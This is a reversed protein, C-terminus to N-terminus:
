KRTACSEPHNDLYVSIDLPKYKTLLHAKTGVYFQQFEASCGAANSFRGSRPFFVGIDRNTAMNEPTEHITSTWLNPIHKLKGGQLEYDYEPRVWENRLQDQVRVVGDNLIRYTVERRTRKIPEGNPIGYIVYVDGEYGEPILFRERTTHFFMNALGFVILLDFALACGNVLRGIYRAGLSVTGKTLVLGTISLVLSISLLTYFPWRDIETAIRAMALMSYLVFVLLATAVCNAFIFLIIRGTQVQM